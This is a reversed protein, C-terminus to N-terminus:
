RDEGGQGLIERMKSILLEIAIPKVLYYGKGAEVVGEEFDQQSGHGTVFVYELGADIKELQRKLEIGSTGPMKVDLVAIDYHKERVMELSREPTTAFDAEIDRIRLREALTGVLEEEDDVLLVRM